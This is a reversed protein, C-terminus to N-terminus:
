NLFTCVCKLWLINALLPQCGIDHVMFKCRHANAQDNKYIQIHIYLVNNLLVLGDGLHIYALHSPFCDFSNDMSCPISGNMLFKPHLIDLQTWARKLLRVSILQGFITDCTDMLPYIQGFVTNPHVIKSGISVHWAEKLFDQICGTCHVTALPHMGRPLSFVNSQQGQWM